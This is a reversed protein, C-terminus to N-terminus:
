FKKSWMSLLLDAIYHDSFIGCYRLHRTVRSVTSRLKDNIV